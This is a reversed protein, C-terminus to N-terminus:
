VNFHLSFVTFISHEQAWGSVGMYLLGSEGQIPVHIVQGEMKLVCIFTGPNSESERILFDGENAQEIIMDSDAKSLKGAFWPALSYILRTQHSTLTCDSLCICEGNGYEEEESIM